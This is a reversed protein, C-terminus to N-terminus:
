VLLVQPAIESVGIHQMILAIAVTGILKVAQRGAESLIAAPASYLEDRWLQIRRVGAPRRVVLMGVDSDWAHRERVRWFNGSGCAPCRGDFLDEIYLAPGYLEVLDSALYIRTRRCLDCRCSLLM